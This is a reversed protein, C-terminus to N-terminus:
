QVPTGDANFQKGNSLTVIGTEVDVSGGSPTEVVTGTTVAEADADYKHAFDYGDHLITDMDQQIDAREDSTPMGLGRSKRGRLYDELVKNAKKMRKLGEKKHTLFEKMQARSLNPQAGKSLARYDVDSVPTMKYVDLMRLREKERASEFRLTSDTFSPFLSYVESTEAGEEISQLMDDINRNSDSYIGELGYVEGIVGTIDEIDSRGAETEAAKTRQADKMRGSSKIYQEAADESAFVGFPTAVELTGDKKWRMLADEGTSLTRSWTDKGGSPKAIESYGSQIDEMKGTRKNIGRTVVKGNEDTYQEIDDYGIMSDAHKQKAFDDTAKQRARTLGQSRRDGMEKASNLARTQMQEGQPALTPSMSYLQGMENQDRLQRVIASQDASGDAPAEGMLARFALDDM